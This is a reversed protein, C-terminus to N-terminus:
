NAKRSWLGYLGIRPPAKTISSTTVNKGDGEEPELTGPDVTDEEAPRYFGTLIPMEMNVCATWQSTINNKSKM